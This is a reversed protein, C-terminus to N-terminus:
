PSAIPAGGAGHRHRRVWALPNMGTIDSFSAYFRSSSGFGAALAFDLIRRESGTLLCRQVEAVRLTTLYQHPGMGVAQTFVTSAHRPTLGCARAADEISLEADAAHAALHEALRMVQQLANGRQGKRPVAPPAIRRPVVDRALALCRAQLLCRAEAADLGGLALGAELHALLGGDDPVRRCLLRGALLAQGVARAEEGLLWAVPMTGWIGTTGRDVSMLRHPIGAWFLATHGAEVRWPRGGILYDMGGRDIHNLELDAHLHFRDMSGPTFSWLRLGYASHRDPEDRPRM